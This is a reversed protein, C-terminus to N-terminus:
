AGIQTEQSTCDSVNISLHTVGAGGTIKPTVTYTDIVTGANTIRFEVEDSDAIGQTQLSWELESYKESDLDTSTIPNTDDSIHGEQFNAGSTKSAPATLQATTHTAASAAVNDSLLLKIWQPASVAVQVTDTHKFSDVTQVPDNWTLVVVGRYGAGGARNTSATALGGSGGAGVGPGAIGAAATTTRGAAGLSCYDINNLFNGGGHAGATAGSGNGGAGSPGAAGGGGGSNPVTYVGNGGNGGANTVDGVATGNETTAGAGSYSNSTSGAGGNGGPALLVTTVGQVISSAGGNGGAAGSSAGATGATGVTINLTTEAGKTITVKSYGGGKGGGGGAVYGSVGGGGGGGGIAEAILETAGGTVSWAWAADTATLVVSAM